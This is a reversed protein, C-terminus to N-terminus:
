PVLVVKGITQRSALAEFAVAVDALPFVHNAFIQVKHRAILELLRPIADTLYEPRLSPFNFGIVSQNRYILQQIQEPSFTDHINRAGYIVMRGFPAMLKFSGEGIEGSAAELVVDVGEGDTAHRVDDAWGRESYNIAVDAGLSVVLDLKQKSGALAIVKKVGMTKALQVLYLGVGGAAAQVLVSDSRQVKAAFKLLTYASLGQVMITTAEAFTVNEPITIALNADATAYEAYGGSSVLAVIRDGIKVHTVKSGVADVTGAAEFGMVFPPQKAVDYRGKTLEVEAFNVGTAKVNILVEHPQPVPTAVDVLRLSAVGDFGVLQVAKM